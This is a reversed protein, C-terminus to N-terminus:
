RSTLTYRFRHSHYTCPIHYYVLAAVLPDCADGLTRRLGIFDLWRLRLGRRRKPPCAPPGEEQLSRHSTLTHLPPHCTTRFTVLLPSLYLPPIAPAYLDVSSTIHCAPESVYRRPEGAGGERCRRKRPQGHEAYRVLAHVARVPAPPSDPDAIPRHPTSPPRVISEVTHM